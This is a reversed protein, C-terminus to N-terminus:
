SASYERILYIYRYIYRSLGESRPSWYVSTNISPYLIKKRPLLAMLWQLDKIYRGYVIALIHCRIFNQFCEIFLTPLQLQLVLWGSQAALISKISRWKLQLIYILIERSTLWKGTGLEFVSLERCSEWNHTLLSWNIQSLILAISDNCILVEILETAYPNKLCKFSKEYVQFKFFYITHM